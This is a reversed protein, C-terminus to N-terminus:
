GFNALDDPPANLIPYNSGLAALGIEDNYGSYIYLKHIDKEDQGISYAFVTLQGTKLGKKILYTPCSIGYELQYSRFADYNLFPFVRQDNGEAADTDSPPRVYVTDQADIDRSKWLGAQGNEEDTKAHPVILWNDRMCNYLLNRNSEAHSMLAEPEPYLENVKVVFEGSTILKPTGGAYEKQIATLTKTFAETAEWLNSAQNYSGYPAPYIAGKSMPSGVFVVGKESEAFRNLRGIRQALRDWPCVDSYMIPASINISMEGIQTLIAIGKASRNKWADKGLHLILKEELYKKDPETFRSHYFILPVDQSALSKQLFQYFSFGRAVTNAFVIGQGTNIMQEFVGQLEESLEQSIEEDELDDNPHANVEALAEGVFQLHRIPEAERQAEQISDTIEYFQRASDPVTASMILIPVKLLRLAKILVQINAQIYSDYFDAEDIVVCSNALFFFTSHHEEKTGTLCMLLHDITCVSVPTALLQALKHVEKANDRDQGKLENGFRSYWASSHYLGTDSVSEGINLALANSTFRTPMAIILRDARGKDVQEKAWLLSADTKGSGTPARLISVPQQACALAQQQVPRLSLSGDSQKHPFEYEFKTLTPLQKGAEKRSARTDALQLLSRVATVKYRERLTLEWKRFPKERRGIINGEYVLGEWYDSFRGNADEKWRKLHRHHLKGHHAAITARVALSLKEPKSLDLSAFEHRLQAKQLHPASAKQAIFCDLTYEQYTAPANIAAIKGNAKCWTEYLAFDQQCAKQWVDDEKGADHWHVALRLEEQLDGGALEKYKISLYPLNKLIYEAEEWVHQTHSSLLIGSPKALSSAHM